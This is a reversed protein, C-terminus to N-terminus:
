PPGIAIGSPSSMGGITAVITNNATAIVSVTTDNEVFGENAVYVHTGDPTVAVGDPSHGVSATAVVTNNATTIVSVSDSSGGGPTLPFGSNTVYAFPAAEAQRTGFGIGLALAACLGVWPLRFSGECKDGQV